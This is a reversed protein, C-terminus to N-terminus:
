RMYQGLRKKYEARLAQNMAEKTQKLTDEFVGTYKNTRKGGFADPLAGQEVIHAFWGDANDAVRRGLFKARPGALVVNSYRGSNWSGISRRLTGPTIPKRGKVNITMKASGIKARLANVYVESVKRNIKRLQSRDASGWMAAREVRKEFEKTNFQINM